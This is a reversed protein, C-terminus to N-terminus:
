KLWNTGFVLYYAWTDPGRAIDVGVRLKFTRALLYRFGAGFSGNWKTNSLEGWDDFASGTGGFLMLSWRKVVDWRIEGEALLDIMGQYRAAPIGRMDTFPESYFPVDGFAQQGDLRLGAVMKKGIPQYAYMYYNIRWYNNDSGIFQQSMMADGHLKVGRNPTFGNDRSDMEVIAGLQSTISNLDAEKVFEHSFTSDAAYSMKTSVFLYRLGAYWNSRGIRRMAQLFVPLAKTNFKFEKEGTTSFTHYFTMNVNGYGVFGIYKIRSKVFTGSRFAGTFWTNNATYAFAAGTVDPAVPSIIQKNGVMDRYPSRKKIFVPVIGAGFGGLAPETIIIPIPIFGGATMLYDSLDFKGDLSDKLSIKNKVQQCAVQRYGVILLMFTFIIHLYNKKM